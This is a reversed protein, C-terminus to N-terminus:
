GKRHVLFILTLRHRLIVLLILLWRLIWIYNFFIDFYHSYVLGLDIVEESLPRSVNQWYKLPSLNLYSDCNAFLPVIVDCDIFRRQEFLKAIELECSQTLEPLM